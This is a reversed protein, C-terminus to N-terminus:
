TWKKRTFRIAMPIKEELRLWEAWSQETTREWDSECHHQFFRTLRESLREWITPGTQAASVAIEMRQTLTEARM